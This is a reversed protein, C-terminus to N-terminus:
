SYFFKCDNEKSISNDTLGLKHSSVHSSLSNHLQAIEDRLRENEMNMKHARKKMNHIQKKLMSINQIDEREVGHPHLEVRHGSVLITSLPGCTIIYAKAKDMWPLKLPEKFYKSSSRPHIQGERNSGWGFIRKRSNNIAIVHNLGCCIYEIRCPLDVLISQYKENHPVGLQCDTNEGLTYVEGARTLMVTLLDGMVFDAIPSPLHMASPTKNVSYKSAAFTGWLYVKGDILAGSHSTGCCLKEIKYSSTSSLQSFYSIEKFSSSTRNNGHGLSFNEGFGCSYVRSKNSLALTHLAGCALDVIVESENLICHRSKAQKSSSSLHSLSQVLTPHLRNEFHGLGLQGELNLGWSYVQNKTSICFTTDTGVYLRSVRIREGLHVMYPKTAVTMNPLGLQGHDNSGIGYVEKNKTLLFLHSEGCIIEYIKEKMQITQLNDSEKQTFKQGWIQIHQSASKKSEKRSSKKTKKSHDRKKSDTNLNIEVM